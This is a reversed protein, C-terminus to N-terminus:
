KRGSPSFLGRLLEEIATPIPDVANVANFLQDFTLPSVAGQPVKLATEVTSPKKAIM